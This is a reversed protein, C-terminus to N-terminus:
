LDDEFSRRRVHGKQWVAERRNTKLRKETLGTAFPPEMQLELQRLEGRSVTMFQLVRKRREETSLYKAPRNSPAYWADCDGDNYDNSGSENYQILRTETHMWDLTLACPGHCSPNDGVTVVYERQEVSDAFQIKRRLHKNEPVPFQPVYLWSGSNWGDFTISAEDVCTSKERAIDSPKKTEKEEDNNQMWLGSPMILEGNGLFSISPRRKPVKLLLVDRDSGNLSEWRDCQNLLTNLSTTDFSRNM